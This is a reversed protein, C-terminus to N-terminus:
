GSPRRAAEEYRHRRHATVPEAIISRVKLRPNLSSWPDQFVAQVSTRYERLERSGFSDVDNGNFRIRGSTLMELLLILRATTTKGCGSEGVLSYTEGRRIEFSVGDVARIQGLVRRLVLGSTVPFHKEVGELAIVPSAPSVQTM